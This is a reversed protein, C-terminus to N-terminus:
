IVKGELVAHQQMQERGTNASVQRDAIDALGSSKGTWCVAFNSSTTVAFASPQENGRVLHNFSTRSNM